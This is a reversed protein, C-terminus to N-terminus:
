AESRSLDALALPLEARYRDLNRQKVAAFGRVMDVLAAIRVADEAARTGLHVGLDDVLTIYEDILRREERRESSRGFPDLRTGRLKVM